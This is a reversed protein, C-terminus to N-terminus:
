SYSPLASLVEVFHSGFTNEADKCDSACTYIQVLFHLKFSQVTTYKASIFRNRSYKSAVV